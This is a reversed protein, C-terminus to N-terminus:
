RVVDMEQFMIEFADKKSINIERSMMSEYDMKWYKEDGLLVDANVNPIAEKTAWLRTITDRNWNAKM